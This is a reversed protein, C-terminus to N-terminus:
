IEPFFGVVFQGKGKSISKRNMNNEKGPAYARGPAALAELIYAEDISNMAESIMKRDM